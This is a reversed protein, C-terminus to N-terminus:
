RGINNVAMAFPKSLADADYPAPVMETIHDLLFRMSPEPPTKCWAIAEDLDETAWRQRM